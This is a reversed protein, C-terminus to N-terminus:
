GGSGHLLHQSCWKVSSSVSATLGSTWPGWSAATGYTAVTSCLGEDALSRSLLELTGTTGGKM